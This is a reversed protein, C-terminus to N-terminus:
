IFCSHAPWCSLWRRKNQYLRTLTGTTQMMFVWIDKESYTKRQLVIPLTCGERLREEEREVRTGMVLHRGEGRTERERQSTYACTFSPAIRLRPALVFCRGLYVHGTRAVVLHRALSIFTKKRQIARIDGGGRERYRHTCVCVHGKHSYTCGWWM